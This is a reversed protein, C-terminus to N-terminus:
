CVALRRELGQAKKNCTIVHTNRKLSAKKSYKKLRNWWGPFLCKMLTLLFLEMVTFLVLSKLKRM